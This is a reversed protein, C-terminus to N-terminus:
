SRAVRVGKFVQIKISVTFFQNAVFVGNWSPSHVYVSVFREPFNRKKYGHKLTQGDLTYM